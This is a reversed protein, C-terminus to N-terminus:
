ESLARGSQAGLHFHRLSTTLFGVLGSKRVQSSCWAEVRITRCTAQRSKSGTPRLPWQVVALCNLGFVRRMLVPPQGLGQQQVLVPAPEPGQGWVRPPVRELASELVPL